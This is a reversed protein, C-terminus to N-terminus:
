QSRLVLKHRAMLSYASDPYDQWLQWYTQVANRGDGLLEYALGLLYYLWERAEYDYEDEPFALARQLLSIAGTPNGERFLINEAQESVEALTEERPTLWQEEVLKFFDTFPDWEYSERNRGDETLYDVEIEFMNGTRQISHSIVEELPYTSTLEHFLPKGHRWNIRFVYLHTGVRLVTMPEDSDPPLYTEVSFLKRTDQTDPYRLAHLWGRESRIANVVPILTFANESTLITWIDTKVVDNPTEVVLLWDSLGNGDIDMQKKVLVDVGVDQLFGIMNTLRNPSQTSILSRIAARLSCFTEFYPPPVYGWQEKLVDDLIRGSPHENRYRSITQEMVSQAAECASYVDIDTTYNDLFAQAADSITTNLPNVPNDIIEQLAEQADDSQFQLAYMYGMQFQLYDQLSSGSNKFITPWDTFSNQIGEIAVAYDGRELIFPIYWYVDENTIRTPSPHWREVLEYREGNWEHKNIQYEPYFFEVEFTDVRYQHSSRFGLDDYCSYYRFGDPNGPGRGLDTFTSGDWQLIIIYGTCGGGYSKGVGWIIEPLSDQSHDEVQYGCLDSKIFYWYGIIGTLKYRGQSVKRLALILGDCFGEQTSIWLVQSTQGEGFLNYVSESQLIRFGHLQLYNDMEEPTFKGQNLGEELTRIIWDDPDESLRSRIANAHALQWEITERYQTHPFRLMAELAALQVEDQLSRYISWHEQYGSLALEELAQILALANQDNWPRLRYDEPNGMLENELVLTPVPTRTPLPTLTITPTLTPTFTITPTLSPTLAMNTSLAQRTTNNAENQTQGARSTAPFDMTTTLIPTSTSYPLTASPSVTPSPSISPSLTQEEEIVRSSCATVLLLIISVCLFHFPKM